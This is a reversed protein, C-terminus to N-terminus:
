QDNSNVFSSFYEFTEKESRSAANRWNHVTDRNLLKGEPSVILITPTGKLDEIGFRRAIELNRDRYGVDVYVVPLSQDALTKLRSSHEFRGALGRSDHCWNAGLILAVNQDSRKAEELASMVDFEANRDRDFPRAEPHKESAGDETANSVVTSPSTAEVAESATTCASLAFVIATVSVQLTPLGLGYYGLRLGTSQAKRQDRGDFYGISEVM